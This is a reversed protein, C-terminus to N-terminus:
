CSMEILHKGNQLTTTPLEPISGRSSSHNPSPELSLFSKAPPIASFITQCTKNHTQSYSTRLPVLGAPSGAWWGCEVGCHIECAPSEAAPKVRVVTAQSGNM